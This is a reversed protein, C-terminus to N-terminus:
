RAYRIRPDLLAHVVDAILNFLVILVSAIIVIGIIRTYDMRVLGDYFLRGMGPWSFVTEIIVSGSFLISLNMAIVTGVPGAANRLAHRFVVAGASLGKARAVRIYDAMLVDILSERMYRSWNAIFVLSLVATPMVLHRLHDIMSFPMGVTGTGASPLMHLKVSFLMMAMLGMWFLPVSIIVLSGFTLISDLSSHRKLASVVGIAMGLLFALIIASGVLEMTAPLRSAIMGLVPEGTAYSRGFDGHLALRELWSLYQVHLPRDLGFNSRIIAADEATAAPNESLVATPGGPIAHMLAFCALSVLLVLPVTALLRRVVYHAM